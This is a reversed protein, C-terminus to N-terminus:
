WHSAARRSPAKKRTSCPSRPGTWDKPINAWDKQWSKEFGETIPLGVDDFKSVDRLSISVTYTATKAAMDLQGKTFSGVSFIYPCNETWYKEFETCVALWGDYLGFEDFNGYGPKGSRLASALNEFAEVAKETPEADIADWYAALAYVWQKKAEYGKAKALLQEYTEAFASAALVALAALMISIRHTFKM